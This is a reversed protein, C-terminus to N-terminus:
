AAVERLHKRSDTTGAERVRRRKLLSNLAASVHTVFLPLSPDNAAVGHREAIPM